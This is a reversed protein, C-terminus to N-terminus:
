FGWARLRRPTLAEWHREDPSAAAALAGAGTSACGCGAIRLRTASLLSSLLEDGGRVCCLLMSGHYGQTTEKKEGSWESRDQAAVDERSPCGGDM